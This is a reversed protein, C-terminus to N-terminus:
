TYFMDTYLMSIHLSHSLSLCVYMGISYFSDITIPQLMLTNNVISYITRFGTYNEIDIGFYGTKWVLAFQTHQKKLWNWKAINQWIRSLLSSTNWAFRSLCVSFIYTSFFFMRHCSLYSCLFFSLFFCILRTKVNPIFSLSSRIM